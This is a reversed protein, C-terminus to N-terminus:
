IPWLNLVDFIHQLEKVFKDKYQYKSLIHLERKITFNFIILFKYFDTEKTEYQKHVAFYIINQMFVCIIKAIINMMM